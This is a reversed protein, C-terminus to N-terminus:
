IELQEIARRATSPLNSQSDLEMLTEAKRGNVRDRNVGAM